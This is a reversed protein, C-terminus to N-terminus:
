PVIEVPTGVSLTRYLEAIDENAMAVCGLTWDWGAGDGHVMIEGGLETNWPPRSMRAIADVIRDHETRTILGDRLGREADEVNPYSLGLSLYFRSKPNKVCIYFEGEPTCGDGERVKDGSGWGLAIRYSKAPVDGDLVTLRRATKEILIRPNALPGVAQGAPSVPALDRPTGESILRRLLGTGFM